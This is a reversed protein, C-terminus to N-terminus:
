RSRRDSSQQREFSEFRGILRQVDAVLRLTSENQRLMMEDDRDMRKLVSEFAQTDAQQHDTLLTEYRSLRVDAVQQARIGMWWIGGVMSLVMLVNGLSITLDFTM